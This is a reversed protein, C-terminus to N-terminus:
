AAPGRSTSPCITTGAARDVVTEVGERGGPSPGDGHHHQQVLLPDRTRRRVGAAVRRRVGGAAFVVQAGPFAGAGPPPDARRGLAERMALEGQAPDGGDGSMQTADYSDLMAMAKKKAAALSGAVELELRQETEELRTELAAKEVM